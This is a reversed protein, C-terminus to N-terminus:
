KINPYIIKRIKRAIGHAFPLPIILLYFSKALLRLYNIPKYQNPCSLTYFWFHDIINLKSKRDFMLRLSQKFSLEEPMNDGVGTNRTDNYLKCKPCIMLQYGHNKARISFEYDSIYHPLRRAALLGIDHFLKVPYLTGKTTLADIRDSSKKRPLIKGKRWDLMVGLDWTKKTVQDIIHSGTISRPKNKAFSILSKLYTKDVACDNNITLIYDGSLASKLISRIGKNLSGTWWLKGTGKIYNIDPHNSTLYKETGDSSGDDVITISFHKYSQTKFSNLLQLLNDKDNHVATLVHIHPKNM